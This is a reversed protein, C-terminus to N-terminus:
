ARNVQTENAQAENAQLKGTVQSGSAAQAKSAHTKDRGQNGGIGVTTFIRDLLGTVDGLHTEM